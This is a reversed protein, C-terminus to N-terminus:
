YIGDGNGYYDEDPYSGFKGNERYLHGTNGLVRSNNSYASGKYISEVHSINLENLSMRHKCIRHQWFSDNKCEGYLHSLLVNISIDWLALRGNGCHNCYFNNNGTKVLISNQPYSSTHMNLIHNNIQILAVDEKCIPCQQNGVLKVADNLTLINSAISSVYLEDKKIIQLDFLSANADQLCTELIFNDIEWFDYKEQIYKVFDRKSVSFGIKEQLFKQRFEKSIVEELKQKHYTLIYLNSDYSLPRFVIEKEKYYNNVWEVVQMNDKFFSSPKTLPIQEIWKELVKNNPVILYTTNEKDSSNITIIECNIRSRLTHFFDNILFSKEEPIETSYKKYFAECIEKISITDGFSKNSLFNNLFEYIEVTDPNIRFKDDHIECNFKKGLIEYLNKDIFDLHINYQQYFADSLEELNQTIGIPKNILYNDLFLFIEKSDPIVFYESKRSQKIEYSDKIGKIDKNVITKLLVNIDFKCHYKKFYDKQLKELKLVSGYKGENKFEKDLFILFEKNSPFIKWEYKNLKICKYNYEHLLFETIFHDNIETKYVNYFATQIKLIDLNEGYNTKKIYPTLFKIKEEDNPVIQYEEESVKKLEFGVESLVKLYFEKEMEIHYSKEFKNRITNIDIIEGIEKNFLIKNFFKNRENHNPISYLCDDRKLIEFNYGYIETNRYNIGFDIWEETLENNYRQRFLNKLESITISLGYAKIPFFYTFYNIVRNQNIEEISPVKELFYHSTRNGWTEKAIDIATKGFSDHISIDAGYLLLLNGVDEKNSNAAMMLATQGYIDTSNIQAGKLILLETIGVNGVFCAHMLPTQGDEDKININVNYNVLYKVTRFDNYDIAVFIPTDGNENVTNVDVGLEILRRVEKHDKNRISSFFQGKLKSKKYEDEFNNKKAKLQEGITMNSRREAIM